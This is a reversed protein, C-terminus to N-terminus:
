VLYCFFNETFLIFSDDIDIETENNCDDFDEINSYPLNDRTIAGCIM